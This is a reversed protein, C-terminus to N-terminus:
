RKGEAIAKFQDAVIGWGTEFGMAQHQKYADETWHRAAATYRTGAGEDAFSFMAMMFPGQPYWGERFADTSVIRVGPTVELFVAEIPGEEGNPGRMMMASRGGPRKDNLIVETTWPKPAWWDPLREVWARWVQERPADIYRTVSLELPASM